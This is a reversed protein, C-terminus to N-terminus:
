INGSIYSFDFDIMYTILREMSRFEKLIIISNM